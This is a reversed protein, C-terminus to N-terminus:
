RLVIGQYKGNWKVILPAKGVKECFRKFSLDDGVDDSVLVGGPHLCQWMTRYGFTRGKPSKDSDYHAIDVSMGWIVDLNASITGRGWRWPFETGM